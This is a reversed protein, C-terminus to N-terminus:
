SFLLTFTAVDLFAAFPIKMAAHLLAAVILPLVL